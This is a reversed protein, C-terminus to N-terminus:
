FDKGRWIRKSLSFPSKRHFLFQRRDIAPQRHLIRVFPRFFAFAYLVLPRHQNGICFLLPPLDLVYIDILIIGSESFVPRGKLPQQLISCLPAKRDNEALGLRPKGSIRHCRFPIEMLFEGEPADAKHCRHIM